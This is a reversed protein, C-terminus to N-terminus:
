GPQLVVRVFHESVADVAAGDIHVVVLMRAAADVIHAAAIHGAICEAVLEVGVVVIREAAIRPAVVIHEAVVPSHRVVEPSRRCRRHYHCSHRRCRRLGM